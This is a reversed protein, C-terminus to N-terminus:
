AADIKPKVLWKELTKQLQDLKIPKALFDNMGAQMCHMRDEPMANATLAIIPVDRPTAHRSCVERLMKTAQFGDIEPMQCDMLVLHFQTDRTKTFADNAGESLTVNAKLMQLMKGAVMRNIPNDDVVLINYQQLTIMPLIAMSQLEDDVLKIQEADPLPSQMTFWFTSGKGPESVVGIQGHMMEVLRKSIALGLGTGGHKRTTSSDAQSFKRFLKSRSQEDIGVGTDQVNCRLTAKKDTQQDLSLRLKVYGKDTFKIANNLLNLFIQRIRVPDGMIYRPVNEQIDVDLMIKKQRALNELLNIV